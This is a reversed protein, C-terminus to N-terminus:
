EEENENSDDSELYSKYNRFKEILEQCRVKYKSNFKNTFEEDAKFSGNALIRLPTLIQDFGFIMSSNLVSNVSPANGYVGKMLSVYEEVLPLFKDDIRVSKSITGM